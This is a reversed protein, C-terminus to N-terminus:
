CVQSDLYHLSLGHDIDEPYASINTPMGEIKGDSFVFYQKQVTPLFKEECRQYWEPLFNLYKDTGIFIVAVKEYKM